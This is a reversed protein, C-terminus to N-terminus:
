IRHDSASRVKKVGKLKEYFLSCFRNMPLPYVCNLTPPHLQFVAFLIFIYCFMDKNVYFEPWECTAYSCLTCFCLMYIIYM